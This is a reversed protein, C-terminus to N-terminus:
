VRPFTVGTPLRTSASCGSRGLTSTKGAGNPGLLAVIQGREAVLDLDDVAVVDGYSVRLSRIEVAPALGSTARGSTVRQGYSEAPM